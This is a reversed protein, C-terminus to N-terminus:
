EAWDLLCCHPELSVTSGVQALQAEAQVLRRELDAAKSEAAHRQRNNDEAAALAEDLQHQLLRYSQL